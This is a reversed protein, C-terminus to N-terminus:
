SRQFASAVPLNEARELRSASRYQPTGERSSLAAQHNAQWPRRRCRVTVDANVGFAWTLGYWWTEAFGWRYGGGGCPAGDNKWPLKSWDIGMEAGTPDTALLTLAILAYSIERQGRIAISESLRMYM